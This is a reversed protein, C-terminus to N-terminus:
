RSQPSVPLTRSMRRRFERPTQGEQGRFARSFYNSDQFGVQFAVESIPLRTSRLLNRAHRLRVGLLYQMPTRGTSERFLRFFRAQSLQEKRYLQDVRIAEPYDRELLVIAEEVPAPHRPPESRLPASLAATATHLLQLFLGHAELQYGTRRERLLSQLRSARELFERRPRTPLHFLGPRGPRRDQLSHPVLDQFGPLDRVIRADPLLAPLDFLVNVLQLGRTRRYAHTEHPVVTFLAGPGLPQVRGSLEHEGGGAYVLVLEWFAHSHPPHDRHRDFFGISLPLEHRFFQRRTFHLPNLAPANPLITRM